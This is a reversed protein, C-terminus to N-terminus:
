ALLEQELHGEPIGEFRPDRHVLIAEHLCAGGMRWAIAQPLPVMNKTTVMSEM